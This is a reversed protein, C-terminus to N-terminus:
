RVRCDTPLGGTAYCGTSGRLVMDNCHYSSPRCHNPDTDMLDYPQVGGANFSQVRLVSPDLRLKLM